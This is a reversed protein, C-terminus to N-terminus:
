ASPSPTHHKTRSLVLRGTYTQLRWTDSSMALLHPRTAPMLFPLFLLPPTVSFFCHIGSALNSIRSLHYGPSTPHLPLAGGTAPVPCLMTDMLPKQAPLLIPQEGKRTEGLGRSPAEGIDRFLSPPSKPDKGGQLHIGWICESPQLNAAM